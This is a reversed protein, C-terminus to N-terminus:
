LYITDPNSPPSTTWLASDYPDVATGNDRIEFHLHDGSSYGTNGSQAINEAKVVGDNAAVQLKGTKLHYYRTQYNNSHNIKVYNGPSVTGPYTNSQNDQISDVTGAEAAAVLEGEDMDYDTGQHGDYAKGYTWGTVSEQWPTGHAYDYVWDFRSDLDFYASITETGYYPLTFPGTARADPALLLALFFISFVIFYKKM